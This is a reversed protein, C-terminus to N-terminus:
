SVARLPARRDPALMSAVVALFTEADRMLDDAERQSVASTAGAEAAQRKGAGAAFFASWEALEPALGTL